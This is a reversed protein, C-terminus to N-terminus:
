RLGEAIARNVAFLLDLQESSMDTTIDVRAETRSMWRTVAREDLSSSIHVQIHVLLLYATYVLIVPWHDDTSFWTARKPKPM